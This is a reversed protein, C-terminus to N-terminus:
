SGTAEPQCRLLQQRKFRAPMTWSGRPFITCISCFLQRAISRSILPDTEYRRAIDPDHTLMKAKVYSKIFAKGRIKQWLRLGPIALPIYLKIRLAPTGLVMGRIPPAYDHVWASVLVAAVSHGLVIMNEVPLDYQTSIFRIFDDIDKVLLHRSVGPRMGASALLNAM